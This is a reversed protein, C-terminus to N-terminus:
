GQALSALLTRLDTDSPTNRSQGEDEFLVVVRLRTGEPVEAPVRISRKRATAEFEVAKM